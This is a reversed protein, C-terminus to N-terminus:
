LVNIRKLTFLTIYCETCGVWQIVLRIIHQIYLSLSIKSQQVNYWSKINQMGKKYVPTVRSLRFTLAKVSNKIQIFVQNSGRIHPNSGQIFSYAIGNPATYHCHKCYLLRLSRAGFNGYRATMYLASM